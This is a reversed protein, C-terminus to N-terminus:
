WVIYGRATLSYNNSHKDYDVLGYKMLNDLGNTLQENNISSNIKLRKWLENLGTEIESKKKAHNIRLYGIISIGEHPEFLKRNFFYLTGDQQICSAIMHFLDIYACLDFDNSDRLDLKIFHGGYSIDMLNRQLEVVRGSELQKRILLDPEKRNLITSDISAQIFNQALLLDQGILRILPKEDTLNSLNLTQIGMLFNYDLSMHAAEVDSSICIIKKMM